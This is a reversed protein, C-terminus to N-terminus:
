HKLTVTQARSEGAAFYMSYRAQHPMHVLAVINRQDGFLEFMLEHRLTLEAIPRPAKFEVVYWWMPSDVADPDPGSQLVRPKLRVGGSHLTVRSELYAIFISDQSSGDRVMLEARGSHRRLAAELDDHFVRVRATITAGEVVMRTHSLHIDHAFRTGAYSLPGALSLALLFPRSVM